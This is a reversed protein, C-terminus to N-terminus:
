TIGIIYNYFQSILLINVGNIIFIFIKKGLVCWDDNM